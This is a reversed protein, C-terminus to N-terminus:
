IEFMMGKCEGGRMIGPKSINTHQHNGAKVIHKDKSTLKGM